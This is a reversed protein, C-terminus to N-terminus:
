PRQSGNAELQAQFICLYVEGAKYFQEFYSKKKEKLQNVINVSDTGQIPTGDKLNATLLLENTGAALVGIEVLDQVDFFVMMDINEDWPDVDEYSYALKKGKKGRSALSIGGIAITEPDIETVDFNASGLIAVPLLGHEGLNISNPDSGPKIDIDVEIAAPVKCKGASGALYIAQIEDASLARNFIEVEDIIGYFYFRLLREYKRTGITVIDNPAALIDGLWEGDDFGQLVSFSEEAGDVFLKYASSDSLWAIHHFSGTSFYNDSFLQNKNQTPRETFLAVHFASSDENTRVYAIFAEDTADGGYGLIALTTSAPTDSPVFIWADITGADAGTLSVDNGVNVYDDVGDFGFAGDVKGPVGASALNILAGNNGGHIDSADIDGPWWSVMNDPPPICAVEYSGNLYHQNIEEASLARGYIAVEDIIGDFYYGPSFGGIKVKASGSHIISPIIGDVTTSEEVVGNIYLKIDQESADYVGVVHYWTDISLNANSTEEINYYDSGNASIRMQLYGDRIAFYYSANGAVWKGIIEGQATYVVRDPEIWAELTLDGTIDLSNDDPIEVYDDVGDFSLAGGFQSTTRTAGYITGDNEDASDFATSEVGEDFKWYSIMGGPYGLSFVFAVIVVCATLIIGFLLPKKM